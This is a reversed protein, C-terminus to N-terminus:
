LHKCSSHAEQTAASHKIDCFTQGTLVWGELGDRKKEGPMYNFWGSIKSLFIM